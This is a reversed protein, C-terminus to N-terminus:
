LLETFTFSYDEKLDNEFDGSGLFVLFCVPAFARVPGCLGFLIESIPIIILYVKM